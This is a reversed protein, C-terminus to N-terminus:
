SGKLILTCKSTILIFYHFFLKAFFKDDHQQLNIQMTSARFVRLTIHVVHQQLNHIEM